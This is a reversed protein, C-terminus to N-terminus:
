ILDGVMLPTAIIEVEAKGICHAAFLSYYGRAYFSYYSLFINPKLKKSKKKKKINMYSISLNLISYTLGRSVLMHNLLNLLLNIFSIPLLLPLKLTLGGLFYSVM